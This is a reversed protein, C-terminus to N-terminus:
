DLFISQFNTFGRKENLLVMSQQPPEYPLGKSIAYADYGKVSGNGVGEKIDITTHYHGFFIRKIGFTPAVKGFYRLFPVYLGGVGGKYSFGLNGHTFMYKEGFISIIVFGSKPNIFSLKNFGMLQCMNKLDEYLFWEYSTETLNAFQIKDTNRGHNGVACVVDISDVELNEQLYKFGSLLCSKAFAIAELPTMSNTQKLEEHLFGGIIDGLLALIHRKISYNKQHHNVLKVLNIFYNNLRKQAIEPNYSNLGLVSDATVVEEIHVDSLLSISVTEKGLSNKTPHIDYVEVNETAQRLSLIEELAITKDLLYDREVKLGREEQRTKIDAKYDSIREEIPKDINQKSKNVGRESAIRQIDEWIADSLRIRYRNCDELKTYSKEEGRLELLINLQEPTLYRQKRAM